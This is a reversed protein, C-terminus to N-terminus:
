AAYHSGTGFMMSLTRVQFEVKQLYREISHVVASTDPAPFLADFETRQLLGNMACYANPDELYLGAECIFERCREGTAINELREEESLDHHFLHRSSALCQTLRTRDEGEISAESFQGPFYMDLRPQVVMPDPSLFSHHIDIQYCTNVITTYLQQMKNSQSVFQRLRREDDDELTRITASPNQRYYDNWLLMTSTKSIAHKRMLNVHGLLTLLDPIQDLLFTPTLINFITYKLLPLPPCHSKPSGVSEIVQCLNVLLFCYSVDLFGYYRHM